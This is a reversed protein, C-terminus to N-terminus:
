LTEPIKPSKELGIFQKEWKDSSMKNVSKEQRPMLRPMYMVVGYSTTYTAQARRYELDYLLVSYWAYMQGLSAGSVVIYQAVGELGLQDELLLKAIILSSYNCDMLQMQSAMELKPM